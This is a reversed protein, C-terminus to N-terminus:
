GSELVKKSIIYIYIHPYNSIYSLLSNVRLLSSRACLAEVSYKETSGSQWWKKQYIYIYIHTHTLIDSYLYICKM